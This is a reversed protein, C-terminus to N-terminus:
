SCCRAWHRMINWDWRLHVPFWRPSSGPLGCSLLLVGMGILYGGLLRRPFRPKLSDAVETPGFNWFAIIFAFLSLGFLAVYVPFLPNYMSLYSYSAYTYLFYGLVGAQLMKGRLSGKRM